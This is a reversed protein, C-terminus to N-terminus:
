QLNYTGLLIVNIVLNLVLGKKIKKLFWGQFVTIFVNQTDVPHDLVQAGLILLALTSITAGGRPPLEPIDQRKDSLLPKFVVLKFIM